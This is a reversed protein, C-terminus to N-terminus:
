ASAAEADWPDLLGAPELCWVRLFAVRIPCLRSVDIGTQSVQTRRSAVPQTSFVVQWRWLMISPLHLPAPADGLTFLVPPPADGVEAGLLRTKGPYGRVLCVTGMDPPARLGRSIVRARLLDASRM